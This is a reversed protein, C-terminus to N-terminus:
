KKLLSIGINMFPKEILYYVVSALAISLLISLSYLALFLNKM